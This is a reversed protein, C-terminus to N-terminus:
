KVVYIWGGGRVANVDNQYMAACRTAPMYYKGRYAANLLVIFRKQEGAPLSFFIDVRDDRYDTYDSKDSKLSGGLDLMRTNIIEWGSPFIQTLAMNKLNGRVGPNKITVVSYFDTGHKLNTIDLPNGDMDYYKIDMKIYKEFRIEKGGKPIGSSTFTAFLNMDSLNELKLKNDSNVKMDISVVPTKSSIQDSQDRNWVYKFRYGKGTENDGVFLSVAYLTFATTQTSMWQDSKLQDSIYKYVDSAKESNDILLYTEMNMAMDRLVSGYNYYSYGSENGYYNVNRILEEAVAKQGALAYAAALRFKASSPLDDNARLRNMAGMDPKGALALTYLRYAQNLALYKKYTWGNAERTQYRIWSDIMSQPVYYGEEKALILFNGAYSTGWDSNFVSGPWYSFSGDPLQFERIKKIGGKINRDIELQKEKDIEVLKSLYLQPFVSSTTQEICGYPYHILYDLRKDLNLSPINSVTLNMENSGETGIPEPEFVWEDGPKLLHYTVEYARQNPNRVQLEIEYSAKERGSKAVVKVKGVGQIDLTELDFYAMYEGEGSVQVTQTSNKVKFLRNTELEMNVSKINGDMVFISVPLKVSEGPALVRPLTGLVMLPQKVPFSKQAHGYAGDQGAIVMCRVSGVYNPMHLKHKDTEGANLEFPGLFTIVPKFRNAKKGDTNDTIEMDGGVAFVKELRKGYAGMVDDYLDWTKVALAEKAYFYDYPSPTKFHTLDLLGDDVVALTYTMKRNNKESVRITYDQEPRVSEPVELVPELITSKDRVMVPIVGYMRIPLDNVTQDHPQLVSVFLYVNPTMEKTAEFSIVTTGTGAEMQWRRLEGNGKELSILLRANDPTPVSVKVTEGVEYNDKDPTLSLLNASGPAKRNKRAYSSPWDFYVKLGTRHGGDKQKVLVYYWGWSPYKLDIFFKGKGNRTSFTGSQVMREYHNSIYSAINGSNSGYWWSWDLMYVEYELGNLSLAKGTKSVTAVEFMQKRDVEVYGYKNVDPGKIGIFNDFPAYNATTQDISFDGGREYVKTVFSVKLM